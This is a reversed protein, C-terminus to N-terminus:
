EIVACALLDRKAKAYKTLDEAQGAILSAANRSSTMGAIKEAQEVAEEQEAAKKVADVFAQKTADFTGRSFRTSSLLDDIITRYTSATLVFRENYIEENTQAARVVNESAIAFLARREAEVEHKRSHEFREAPADDEAMTSLAQYLSSQNQLNANVSKNEFGDEGRFSYTARLNLQPSAGLFKSANKHLCSLRRSAKSTAERRGAPSVFSTLSAISAAAFAADVLNNGDYTTNYGAYAAAALVGIGALAEGQNWRGSRKLLFSSDKGIASVLDAFNEDDGVDPTNLAAHDIADLKETVACGSGFILVIISALLRM